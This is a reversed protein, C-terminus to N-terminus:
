ATTQHDKVLRRDDPITAQEMLKAFLIGSVGPISPFSAFVGHLKNKPLTLSRGFRPAALEAPAEGEWLIEFSGAFCLHQFCHAELRHMLTKM